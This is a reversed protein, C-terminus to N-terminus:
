RGKFSATTIAKGTSPESTPQPKATAKAAPKRRRVVNSLTRKEGPAATAQEVHAGRVVLPAFFMPWKKLAPDSALVVEGEQYDGSGTAFSHTVTYHTQEAM